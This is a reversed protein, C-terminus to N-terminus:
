KKLIAKPLAFYFTAGADVAGEASISGGHKNIVREVISLGIGTGEFEQATHLRQFVGFLKDKYRMDFGAGNDKVFYTVKEKDEKYGIAIVPIDKKQSFKLANSLLNAWVQRILVPDAYAYPLKDCTFQIKKEGYSVKLEDFVTTALTTMDVTSFNLEQRGIRSFALLDDILKGMQKTSNHITELIRLGESDLNKAYDETLIKSYGDIARLPARLDHSVSYSFSELEKNASEIANFLQLRTQAQEFKKKETIDRAVAAAGIIKGARDKMPSVSLSIDILSGDKRLRVSEYHEISEGKAVKKLIQLNEDIREPPSLKTISQGIMEKASYGYMREAGNNWSTVIGDLTKGFIADDSYKVIAALQEEEKIDNITQLSPLETLTPLIKWALIATAVSLLGTLFDIMGELPYLGWFYTLIHVFHHMGCLLIFAGFLMFMWSYSLDKRKIVLLLIVIPISFYSVVILANSLILFWMLGPYAIFHIGHAEFANPSLLLPLWNFWTSM